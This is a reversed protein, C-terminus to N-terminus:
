LFSICSLFDGPGLLKRRSSASVEYMCTCLPTQVLNNVATDSTFHLLIFEIGRLSLSIWDRLWLQATSDWATIHLSHSPCIFLLLSLYPTFVLHFSFTAPFHASYSGNKAFSFYFILETMFLLSARVNAVIHVSRSFMETLSALTHSEM